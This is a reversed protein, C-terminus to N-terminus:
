AKRRSAWAIIAASVLVYFGSVWQYIQEPYPAFLDGSGPNPYVAFLLAALPVFWIAFKKWASFARPVFLLALFVLALAGSGYFLPDGIRNLIERCNYSDHACLGYTASNSLVFGTVSLLASFILAIVTKM